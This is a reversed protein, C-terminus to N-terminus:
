IVSRSTQELQWKLNEKKAIMEDRDRKGRQVFEYQERQREDKNDCKSFDPVTLVPKHPWNLWEWNIELFETLMKFRRECKCDVIEVHKGPPNYNDAIPDMFAKKEIGCYPCFQADGIESSKCINKQCLDQFKTKGVERRLTNEM